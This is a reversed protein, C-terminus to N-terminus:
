SADLKRSIADTLEPIGAPMEDVPTARPALM